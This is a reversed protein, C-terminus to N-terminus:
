GEIWDSIRGLVSEVDDEPILDEGIADRVGAIARQSRATLSLPEQRSM